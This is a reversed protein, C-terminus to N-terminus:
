PLTKRLLVRRYLILIFRSWVRRITGVQLGFMVVTALGLWSHISYVNAIGGDNHASFVAVLATIAFGLAALQMVAHLIKIMIKKENKFVRYVMIAVLYHFQALNM